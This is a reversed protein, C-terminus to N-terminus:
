AIGLKSYDVAMFGGIDHVADPNTEQVEQAMVGEHVADDWMYRFEYWKHGNRMGKPKIDRKLRSDSLLVSGLQLGTGASGLLGPNQTSTSSGSSNTIIPTSGLIGLEVQARRFPDEQARLFEQYQADLGAQETQQQQQGFQNLVQANNINATNAFNGLNGLLGAQDLQLQAGQLGLNSNFQDSQLQRNADQQFLNTANNFNDSNLGAVTRATIDAFNRGTESEVLGHRSGGFAGAATAQGQVDNLAGDRQRNLEGVTSDIVQQQFPNTYQSLDAGALSQAQVEQPQFGGAATAAAGAQDLLGQGQAQGQTFQQQAGLQTDNLGAVRQGDFTQFPNSNLTDRVATQNSLLQNRSFDSITNTQSTESTTKKKGM